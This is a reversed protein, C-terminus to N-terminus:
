LPDTPFHRSCAALHTTAPMNLNLSYSLNSTNWTDNVTVFVGVPAEFLVMNLIPPTVASLCCANKAPSSQPRRNAQSIAGGMSMPRVREGWGCCPEVSTAKVVAEYQLNYLQQIDIASM